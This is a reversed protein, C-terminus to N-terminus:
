LPRGRAQTTAGKSNHAYCAPCSLSPRRLRSNALGPIGRCWPYTRDGEHDNGRLLLPDHDPQEREPLDNIANTLRDRMEGDLYRFLPDDEPRSSLYVLEEEGSDEETRVGHLSGIELGRLEGLLQQYAALPINLKLAIETDIPSRHFPSFTLIPVM